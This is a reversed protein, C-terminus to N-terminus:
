ESPLTIRLAGNAPAMTVAQRSRALELMPVSVAILRIQTGHRGSQAPMSRLSIPGSKSGIQGAFHGRWLSM